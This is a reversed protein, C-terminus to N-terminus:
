NFLSREIFRSILVVNLSFFFVIVVKGTTKTIIAFYERTFIFNAIKRSQPWNKWYVTLFTTKKLANKWHLLHLIKKWKRKANTNGNLNLTNENFYFPMQLITKIRHIKKILDCKTGNKASTSTFSSTSTGSQIQNNENIIIKPLASQFTERKIWSENEFCKLYVERERM